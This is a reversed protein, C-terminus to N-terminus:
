PCDRASGIHLKLGCECAGFAAIPSDLRHRGIGALEEIVALATAFPELRERAIAAHEARVARHRARRDLGVQTAAHWLNMLQRLARFALVPRTSTGQVTGPRPATRAFRALAQSGRLFLDGQHHKIGTRSRENSNLLWSYCDHGSIDSVREELAQCPFHEVAAVARPHLPDPRGISPRTSM